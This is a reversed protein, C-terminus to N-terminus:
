SMARASSACIVTLDPIDGDGVDIGIEWFRVRLDIVNLRTVSGQPNGSLVVAAFGFPPTVVSKEDIPQNM